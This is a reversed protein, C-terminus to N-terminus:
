NLLEDKSRLVALNRKKLCDFYYIEILLELVEMNEPLSGLSLDYM